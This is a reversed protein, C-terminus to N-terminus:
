EIIPGYRTILKPPHKLTTAKKSQTAAITTAAITTAAITTAAITAKKAQTSTTKKLKTLDSM